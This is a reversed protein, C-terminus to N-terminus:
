DSGTCRHALFTSTICHWILQSCFARARQRCVVGRGSRSCRTQGYRFAAATRLLATARSPCPLTYM